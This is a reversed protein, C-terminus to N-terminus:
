LVLDAKLLVFVCGWVCVGVRSCGGGGGKKREMQWILVGARAAARVYMRRRVLEDGSSYTCTPSAGPTSRQWPFRDLLLHERYCATFVLLTMNHSNFSRISSHARLRVAFPAASWDPNMQAYNRM